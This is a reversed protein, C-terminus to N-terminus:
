LRALLDAFDLPPGGQVEPGESRACVLSSAFAKACFISLM